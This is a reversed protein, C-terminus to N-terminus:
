YSKLLCIKLNKFVETKKAILNYEKRALEIDKSTM